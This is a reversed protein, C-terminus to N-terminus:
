ASQASTVNPFRKLMLRLEASKTTEQPIESGPQIIWASNVLDPNSACATIALIVGPQYNALTTATIAAAIGTSSITFTLEAEYHQNYYNESGVDGQLYRVQEVDANIKVSGRQLFFGTLGTATVGGDSSTSKIGFNVPFGIGKLSQSM